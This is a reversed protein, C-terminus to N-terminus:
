VSADISRVSEVQARGPPQGGGSEHYVVARLAWLGVRGLAVGVLCAALEPWPGPIMSTLAPALLLGGVGLATGGAFDWRAIAFFGV